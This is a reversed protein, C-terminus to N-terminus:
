LTELCVQESPLRKTCRVIVIRRRPYLHYCSQKTPIGDTRVHAILTMIFVGEKPLVPPECPPQISIICDAQGHSRMTKYFHVSNRLVVSGRYKLYYLIRQIEVVIYTAM